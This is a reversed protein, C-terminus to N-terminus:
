QQPIQHCRQAFARVQDGAIRVLVQDLTSVILPDSATIEVSFDVQCQPRVPQAPPLLVGTSSSRSMNNNHNGDDVNSANPTGINGEDELPYLQWRSSLQDFYKGNLSQTEIIFKQPDVKVKSRYTETFLPPLGVTLTAEFDHTTTGGGSLRRDVKSYSCLPLFEAYRDVDQIIRFLHVASTQLVKHEVHRKTVKPLFSQFIMGTKNHTYYHTRAHQIVENVSLGLQVSLILYYILV